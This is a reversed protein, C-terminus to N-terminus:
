EHYINLIEKKLDVLISNTWLLSFFESTMRSVVSLPSAIYDIQDGSEDMPEEGPEFVRSIIGKLASGGITMKDGPAPEDEIQIFFMIIIGDLVEGALKDRNIRIPENVHIPEDRPSGAAAEKRKKAINEQEKIFKQLSSSLEALDKNYYTRIEVIRGAYKSFITNQTLENISDNFESGVKQLLLSIDADDSVNEFVALASNPNVIDGVKVIKQLNTKTGLSVTRAMTVFATTDKALKDTIMVSDEFTQDLSALATKVLIGSKYSISGDPSPSFYSPDYALVDNKKFKTGVKIGPSLQSIVTIFFGGGSNKISRPSMDIYAIEGNSYELKILNQDTNIEIVKGDRIAKYASTNGIVNVLAKEAGSGVLLPTHKRIPMTHCAQKSQMAIRPPDAHQSVFPSILEGLALVQSAKTKETTFDIQGRTDQIATGYSLTRKVGIEQSDPSYYGFVGFMSGHFSRMARNVMRGEGLGGAAGTWTIKGRLEAELLPNLESVEEVNSAAQIARMLDNPNVMLKQPSASERTARVREMEKHLIKYLLTNILEPGRLRYNSLDNADKYLNTALLNNSYILVGSMDTPLNKSKLLDETMPDIFSTQYNLLAKAHGPGGLKDAIYDVWGIGGKNYSLIPTTETEIEKLGNILISDSLKNSNFVLICDEFKISDLNKYNGKRYTSPDIIEYKLGIRNFMPILGLDYGVIIATPLYQSLMKVRTYTYKRAPISPELIKTTPLVEKVTKYIFESLSLNKPIDLIKDKTLFKVDGNPLLGVLTTENIWGIPHGQQENFKNLISDTWTKKKLESDLQLRSFIFAANKTRIARVTKAIDNYEITSQYKANASTASGLEVKVQSNELKSLNIALLRIYSSLASTNQGFREVIAKNYATTILVESPNVKIIPLALIQKTVSYKNGNFKLYGDRSIIPVDIHITSSKNNLDKYQITITEKLNMLDSSDKREIKNIFHPLIPDNALSSFVRAMDIDYTGKEIYNMAVADFTPSAIDKSIFEGNAIKVDIPKVADEKFLDKLLIRNNYATVFDIENFQKQKLTEIKVLRDKDLQTLQPEVLSETNQFVNFVDELADKDLGLSIKEVPSLDDKKVLKEFNSLVKLRLVKSNTRPDISDIRLGWKQELNIFIVNEPNSKIMQIETGNIFDFLFHDIPTELTTLSLLRTKLNTSLNSTYEIFTIQNEHEDLTWAALADLTLDHAQKNAVKTLKSQAFEAQPTVDILISKDLTSEDTKLKISQVLNEKQLDLMLASNLNVGRGPFNPIELLKPSIILNTHIKQIIEAELFRKVFDLNTGLLVIKFKINNNLPIQNELSVVHGSTFKRILHNM